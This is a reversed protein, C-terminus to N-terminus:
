KPRVARMGSMYYLSNIVSSFAARFSMSDFM